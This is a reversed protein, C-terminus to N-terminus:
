PWRRRLEALVHSVEAEDESRLAQLGQYVFKGALESAAAGGGDIDLLALSVWQSARELMEEVDEKPIPM